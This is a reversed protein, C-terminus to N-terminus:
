EKHNAVTPPIIGGSAQLDLAEPHKKYHGRVVQAVALRVDDTVQTKPLTGPQTKPLADALAHVLPKQLPPAKDEWSALLERDVFSPLSGMIGLDNQDHVLLGSTTGRDLTLVQFFYATHYALQKKRDEDTPESQNQLAERLIEIYCDIAATAVQRAMKTDASFDRTSFGELYFHTVGRYRDLAPIHFYRDGQAAAKEYHEPTAARLADAFKQAAAQDEISPNLDAMMRYYGEGSRMETWSFHMHVSPALPNHPHIITSLADASSLRKDADDDYHVGSVNVAARNFVPTLATVYRNGGGHRGEDRLWDVFEFDQDHGQERSVTQLKDVFSGQLEEVLARAITANPSKAFIREVLQAYRPMQTMTTLSIRTCPKRQGGSVM